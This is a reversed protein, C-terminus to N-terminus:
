AAVETIATIAKVNIVTDAANPKGLVAKGSGVSKLVVTGNAGWVLSGATLIVKKGVFKYPNVKASM